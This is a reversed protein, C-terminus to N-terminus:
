GVGRESHLIDDLELISMAYIRVAELLCGIHQSEDPQHADGRGPGYPMLSTEKTNGPGFAVSNPVKSAYTGGALVYPERNEGTVTNFVATLHQAVPHNKPIYHSDTAERLVFRWGAQEVSAALIPLVREKKDTVSYRIDVNVRLKGEETRVM